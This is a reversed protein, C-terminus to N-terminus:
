NNCHEHIYTSYPRSFLLFWWLVFVSFLLAKEKRKWLFLTNYIKAEVADVGDKKADERERNSYKTDINTTDVRTEKHIIGTQGAPLGQRSLQPDRLLFRLLQPRSRAQNPPYAADKVQQNRVCGPIGEPQRRGRSFIYIIHM